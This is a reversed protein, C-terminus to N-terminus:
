LTAWDLDKKMTCLNKAGTETIVYDDEIRVGGVGPLYIGPEVTVVMGPQLTTAGLMNTLRPEEHGNLGIGHGLGHGFQEAYGAAGIHKRAIGDIESSSKGPALAAAALQQAELVIAYIERVKEPWKGLCFTRTMDSHYGEFVAGWDILLPQGAKLKKDSPRYHPLSSNAGSAVITKFGPETSGRTKMEAELKAAIELESQGARISPILALLAQEQIKAAKKILGVEFEDKILRQEGVLGHTDQLRKSGVRRGIAGREAITMHEAQVGLKSDGGGGGAAGKGSGMCATVAEAVAEVMSRRRIVVEALAKVPELEEQYRFDSIVVARGGDGSGGGAPLLLYSDGGAFGTLYHVDKPNTVLLHSLGLDM